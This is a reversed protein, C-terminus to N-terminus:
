VWANTLGSGGGDDYSLQNDSSSGLNYYCLGPFYVKVKIVTVCFHALEHVYDTDSRGFLSRLVLLKNLACLGSLASSLSPL